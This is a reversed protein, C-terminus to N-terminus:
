GEVDMDSDDGDNYRWFDGYNRNAMKKHKGRGKEESVTDMKESAEEVPSGSMSEAARISMLSGSSCAAVGDPMEDGIVMAILTQIPM